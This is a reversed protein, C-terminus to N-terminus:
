RLPNDMTEDILTFTKEAEPGAAAQNLRDVWVAPPQSGHATLFRKGENVGMVFLAYAYAEATFPDNHVAAAAFVLQVPVGSQPDLVEHYRFGRDVFFNQADDWWAVCGGDAEYVAFSRDGKRPHPLNVGWAANPRRGKLCAVRGIRFAYDKLGAKELMEIAAQAAYGDAVPTLDFTQGERTIKVTHASENIEVNAKGTRTMAQALEEPPVIRTPKGKLNWAEWAAGLTFDVKGDLDIGLDRGAVLAAFLRPEPQFEKLQAGQNLKGLAGDGKPDLDKEAAGVATIWADAFKGAQADDESRLKLEVPVGKLDWRRRFVGEDETGAAEFLSRGRRPGADNGSMFVIVEYIVALGFVALAAFVRVDARGSLAKLREIM